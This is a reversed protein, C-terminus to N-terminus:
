GILVRIRLRVGGQAGRRVGLFPARSPPRKMKMRFSLFPNFQIHFKFITLGTFLIYVENAEDECTLSDDGMDESEQFSFYSFMILVLGSHYVDVLIKLRHFFIYRTRKTRVRKVIALWMKAERFFLFSYYSNCINICILNVLLITYVENLSLICQVMEEIDDGSETCM